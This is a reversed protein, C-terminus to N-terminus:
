EPKTCSEPSPRHVMWAAMSSATGTSTRATDKNVRKRERWSVVNASFTSEAILCLNPPCTSLGAPPQNRIASRPDRIKQDDISSKFDCFASFTITFDGCDAIRLGCDAIR